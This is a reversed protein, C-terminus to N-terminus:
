IRKKDPLFRQYPNEKIVKQLQRFSLGTIRDGYIECRKQLHESDTKQVTIEVENNSPLILHLHFSSERKGEKTISRLEKERVKYGKRELTYLVKEPCDSFVSIDIDSNKNATGRWVSGVLKPRFRKLTEMIELSDIRMQLLRQLRLKGEVEDAIKDIERAVELNNPLIRVGLTQTARIKAQKYEKEQLTYLLSAAERAVKERSHGLRDKKL